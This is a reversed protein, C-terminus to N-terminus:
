VYIAGPRFVYAENMTSQIETNTFNFSTDTALSKLYDKTERLRNQRDLGERFKIPAKNNTTQYDELHAPAVLHHSLDGLTSNINSSSGKDGENTPRIWGVNEGNFRTLKDKQTLTVRWLNWNMYFTMLFISIAAASLNSTSVILRGGKNASKRAISANSTKNKERWPLPM